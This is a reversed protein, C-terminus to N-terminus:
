EGKNSKNKQVKNLINNSITFVDPGLMIRTRAKKLYINLPEDVIGDNVKVDRWGEGTIYLKLTKHKTDVEAKVKKLIGDSPFEKPEHWKVDFSKYRLKHELNVDGVLAIRPIDYIDTKYVISGTNQNLIARFDFKEKLIKKVKTTYEGYPYAYVDPNYGMEKQFIDYAKKTDKVIQDKSLNQLRPHSYSHLGITGYKSAERLQEWSMFDGFKRTSAKVYVYLSFPYGYQKFIELGNDYFSKYADDITLAVWHSPVEEKKELKDLIDELPVVKYGNNKFYEFQKVLEKTSTNASKYRNDDFRHYVFIHADAFISSLSIILFFIYRM